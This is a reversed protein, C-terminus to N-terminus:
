LALMIYSPTLFHVGLLLMFMGTTPPLVCFAFVAGFNPTQLGFELSWVEFGVRWVGFEFSGPTAGLGASSCRGAM